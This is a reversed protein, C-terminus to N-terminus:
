GFGNVTTALVACLAVDRVEAEVQDAVVVNCKLRM